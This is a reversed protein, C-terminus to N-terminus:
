ASARPHVSRAFYLIGIMRGLASLLFIPLYGFRPIILSGLFTGSASSLAVVVQFAAAYRAIKESPALSLILNFSCLNFGAWLLGALINILIGHLPVRAFIWISPILPILFGTVLMVKRSGWNDALSGFLRLAPLAALGSMVNFLSVDTPTGKLNQVLYVTFYPGAVGISLNWILSFLAYHRFIPDAVMSQLAPKMAIAEAAPQSAHSAPEQVQMFLISSGLGALFALIFALQYGLTARFHSILLGALYTATMSTISMIFNRAGFYRGRWASPVIDGALSTWAPGSFNGLGDAVVKLVILWVISATRSLFFPLLASILITLRAFGAGCLVFILKRKGTRETLMAGPLLMLTGSIGALSTMWGIHSSTAGLALLYVTLFPAVIGYLCAGLGGDLFFWRLNKRTSAPLNESWSGGSLGLIINQKLRFWFSTLM